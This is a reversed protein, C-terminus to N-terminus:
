SGAFAMLSIATQPYESLIQKDVTVLPVDLDHALVVFECDYASLKSRSAFGLVDLNTVEFEGGRMLESAADMIELSDELSLRGKRMYNVLVNRMESRWLLPANWESDRRLASEAQTSREASLFLYGIINTDVVIV